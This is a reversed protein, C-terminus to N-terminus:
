SPAQGFTGHLPEASAVNDCLRLLLYDEGHCRIGNCVVTAAVTQRDKHRLKLDGTASTFRLSEDLLQEYSKGGGALLEGLLTGVLVRPPYGIISAFARNAQVVRGSDRELIAMGEPSEEMAAAYLWEHVQEGQDPYYHGVVGMVILIAAVSILVSWGIFYRSTKSGMHYIDRQLDTSVVLVPKNDIDTLLLNARMISGKASWVAFRNSDGLPLGEKFRALERKEPLFVQLPVMTLSSLRAIESKDIIRGMIMIGRVPGSASSSLIPRAVVLMSVGDVKLIGKTLSQPTVNKSFLGVPGLHSRLAAQLNVRGADKGYMRAHVIEGSVRAVAVMQVRLKALSEESLNQDSYRSNGDVVFRCTDDWAAYDGAFAALSDMEDDVAANIRQLHEFTDKNELSRFGEQVILKASLILLALIFLIAITVSSVIRKKPTM